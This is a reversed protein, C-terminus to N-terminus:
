SLLSGKLMFQLRNGVNLSDKYLSPNFIKSSLDALLAYETTFRDSQKLYYLTDERIYAVIISSKGLVIPMARHDDLTCYPTAAGTTLTITDYGPITADYWYFYCAGSVVTYTACPHMNVDFCISLQTIDNVALLQQDIGSDSKVWISTGTTGPTGKLYGTWKQYELGETTDSLGIGGLEYDLVDFVDLGGPYRYSSFVLTTSLAAGPIM